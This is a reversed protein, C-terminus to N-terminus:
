WRKKDALIARIAVVITMLPYIAELPLAAALSARSPWLRRGAAFTASDVLLKVAFAVATLRWPAMGAVALLAMAPWAMVAAFVIIALTAVASGGASPYGGAKALWRTRQRIYAGVGSPGPTRIMADRRCIFRIDARARIAHLLLFMDDGSAYGGKCDHSTFLDRDFAMGAGNAMTPMGMIASGATVVQLCVFEMEVMAGWLGGGGEMMVPLLLLFGGKAPAARRVADVCGDGFACDADACLVIRSKALAVGQAQAMKKGKRGENEVLRVGKRALIAEKLWRVTEPKAHDAVFIAEDGDRLALSLSGVCRSLEAVDEHSFCVIVSVTAARDGRRAEEGRERRRSVAAACLGIIIAYPSLMLALAAACLIVSASM